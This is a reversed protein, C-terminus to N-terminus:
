LLESANVEFQDFMGKPWHELRGYNVIKTQEVVTNKKNDLELWYINVKEAFEEHNKSFIRIGDFLHDSHTEVLVQSGAQVSLAILRALETQGKPHLHAEPNELLVISNPILTGLFLSVIIPLTYSLGFGVNAARHNNFLTYSSDAQKFIEHSFEVGPSIAGLWAELNFKFSSGQSNEHILIPNLSQYDYYDICKVINEGKVGMKYDNEIPISTQPGFRDASVYIIEPFGEDSESTNEKYIAKKQIGAVKFHAVLELAEAYPNKLEEVGGHGKLLPNKKQMAVRELIRLAQIVSSKGSSNLGTLITLDNLQLQGSAFSKFGNLSLSTIM